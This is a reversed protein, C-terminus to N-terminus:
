LGIICVIKENKEQNETGARGNSEGFRERTTTRQPFFKLKTRQFVCCNPLAVVVFLVMLLLIKYRRFFIIIVTIMATRHIRVSEDLAQPEDADPTAARTERAVAVM